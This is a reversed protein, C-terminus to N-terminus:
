YLMNVGDEAHLTHEARSDDEAYKKKATRLKDMMSARHKRFWAQAGANPAVLTCKYFDSLMDPNLMDRPTLAVLAFRAKVWGLRREVLVYYHRNPLIEAKLLSGSEGGVVFTHSGPEVVHRIRTRASCIGVLELRGDQLEEALPAQIAGGILAPRFFTITSKGAYSAPGPDFATNMLKSSCGTLSFLACLLLLAFFRRM